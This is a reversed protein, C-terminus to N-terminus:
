RLASVTNWRGTGLRRCRLKICDQALLREAAEVTKPAMREMLAMGCDALQWLDVVAAITKVGAVHGFDDQSVSDSVSMFVGVNGLVKCLVAVGDETDTSSIIKFDLPIDLDGTTYVRTKHGFVKGHKATLDLQLSDALAYLQKRTM